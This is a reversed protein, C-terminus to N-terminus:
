EALKKLQSELLNIEDRIAQRQVHVENIDYEECEKGALSYEYLKVPIYDTQALEDKKQRIKVQLESINKQREAEALEEETSEHVPQEEPIVYVSGDNSLQYTLDDISRYLTNYERYAKGGIDITGAADLYLNFGDLNVDQPNQFNLSVIHEGQPIVTCPLLEKTKLFKLYAM